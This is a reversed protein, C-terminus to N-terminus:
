DAAAHAGRRDARAFQWHPEFLAVKPGRGIGGRFENARGQRSTKADVSSHLFVGKGVVADAPVYSDYVSISSHEDLTFASTNGALHAKYLRVHGGNGYRWNKRYADVAKQNNVLDINYAVAESGDKAQIGIGCGDFVDNMALLVSGEGVSIGKDGSAEFISDRVVAETEMLDLGDNGSNRF